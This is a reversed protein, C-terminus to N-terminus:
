RGAEAQQLRHLERLGATSLRVSRRATNLETFQNHEDAWIVLKHATLVNLQQTAEEPTIGLAAAVTTVTTAGGNLTNLLELNAVHGGYEKLPLM